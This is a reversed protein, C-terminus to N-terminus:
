ETRRFTDGFIWSAVVTVIGLIKETDLDIGFYDSSVIGVVALTAVWFRRSALLERLKKKNM